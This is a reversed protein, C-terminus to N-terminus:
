PKKKGYVRNQIKKEIKVNNRQAKIKKELNLIPFFNFNKKRKSM